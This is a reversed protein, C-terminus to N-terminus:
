TRTVTPKKKKRHTHKAGPIHDLVHWEGYDCSCFEEHSEHYTVHRDICAVKTVHKSIRTLDHTVIVITVGEDNLEKLLDYFQAQHAQDVGATPEDLVLLEPKTILARAIMVRQQQGGSLKGIRRKAFSQMDVRKLVGKIREKDVTLRPWRQEALLGLGVVEEVTAPFTPDISTAKQPVYGARGWENFVKIPTGFLSVSGKQLPLLGLGLRILTSKGSGNPGILAVFDGAYVTFSADAIVAQEMFSFSVGEFSLVSDKKSRKSTRMCRM